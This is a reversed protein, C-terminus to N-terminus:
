FRSSLGVRCPCVPPVRRGLSAPRGSLAAPVLFRLLPARVPRDGSNPLHYGLWYAVGDGSRLPQCRQGLAHAPEPQAPPLTRRGGLRMRSGRSLCVPQDSDWRKRGSRRRGGHDPAEADAQKLRDREGPRTTRPKTTGQCQNSLTKHEARCAGTETRRVTAPYVMHRVGDRWVDTRRRHLAKFSMVSRVAPACATLGATFGGKSALLMTDRGRVCRRM